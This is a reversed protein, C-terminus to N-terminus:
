PKLPQFYLNSTDVRLYRGVLIYRHRAFYELIQQRVQPVAEICVLSPRFRDIDFGKLVKPESLEVDISLLDVGTMGSADLLDTLTITTASIDRVKGGFQETYAKTTSAYLSSRSSVYMRVQENSTDSVFLPFFRTRPRYREYDAAFGAQPDVALGSWGLQTELYFTNSRDRFHNAGIDVFTGGRRDDFFDRVIWEEYHSSSRTSGYKARLEDLQWQTTLDAYIVERTAAGGFASGCQWGVLGATLSVLVLEVLDFRRSHSSM